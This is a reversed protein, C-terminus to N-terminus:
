GSELDSEARRLAATVQDDTSLGDRLGYVAALSAYDLAAPDIKHTGTYSENQFNEIGKGIIDFVRRCGEAENAANERVEQLYRYNISKQGGFKLM